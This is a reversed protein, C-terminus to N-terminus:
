REYGMAELTLKLRDLATKRRHHIGRATLHLVGGIKEDSMGLFYHMVIVDRLKPALGMIAKGLIHDFVTVAGDLTHVDLGELRYSDEEGVEFPLATLSVEREAQRALERRADISENRILCKAYADFTQEQYRHFEANTM